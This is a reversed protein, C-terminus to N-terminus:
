KFIYNITEALRLGGKLLQDEMIYKNDYHYKYGLKDDMKVNDYIHNAHQYSDYIWDAYTGKQLERKRKKNTVIDLVDAYETFSYNEYDVLKSDWVSHINTNDRFWQVKLKNGGLDEARGVHMPQHADGMIHILFYLYEQKQQITLEKNNKLQDILFLGKKYMNDEPSNELALDFKERSMGGPINVYHFSDAHKWNEDSKIFDPWNAWYALKQPGIIKTLEKKAKKSLNNDAIEAVVRHGTMGWASVKNSLLLCSLAFASAVLKKM